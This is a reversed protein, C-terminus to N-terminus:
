FLFQYAEDCGHDSPKHWQSCHWSCTMLDSFNINQGIVKSCNTLFDFDTDIASDLSVSKTLIPHVVHGGNQIKVYIAIDKLCNSMDECFNTRIMM